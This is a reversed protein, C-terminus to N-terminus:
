PLSQAKLRESLENTRSVISIRKNVLSMVERVCESLTDVEVDEQKAWRRAYEEVSAM